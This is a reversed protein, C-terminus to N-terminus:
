IKEHFHISTGRKQALDITSERSKHHDLKEFFKPEM